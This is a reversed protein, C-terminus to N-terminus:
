ALNITYYFTKEGPSTKLFRIAFGDINQTLSSTYLMHVPQLVNFTITTSIPTWDVSDSNHLYVYTYYTNNLVQKTSITAVYSANGNKTPYYYIKSDQNGSSIYCGDTYSHIQRMDIYGCDYWDATPLGIPSDNSQISYLSAENDIFSGETGSTMYNDLDIVMYEEGDLLTWYQGDREYCMYGHIDTLEPETMAEAAVSLNVTVAMIAATLFSVIKKVKKM